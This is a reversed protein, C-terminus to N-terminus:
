GSHKVRLPNGTPLCADVIIHLFTDQNVLYYFFLSYLQNWVSNLLPVTLTILDSIIILRYGISHKSYATHLSAHLREKKQQRYHKPM